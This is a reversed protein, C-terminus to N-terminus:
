EIDVIIEIHFSGASSEFPLVITPIKTKYRIRLKEGVLVTPIARELVYNKGKLVTKAQGFIINLLEGAADQVEETINDHSEGVM